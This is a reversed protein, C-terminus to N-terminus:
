ETRRTWRARQRATAIGQASAGRLVRMAAVEAPSGTREQPTVPSRGGIRALARTLLIDAEDEWLLPSRLMRGDVTHFTLGLPTTRVDAIESWTLLSRGIGVGQHGLVFRSSPLRSALAVGTLLLTACGGIMAAVFMVFAPDATPVGLVLRVALMAVPWWTLILFTVCTPITIAPAGFRAWRHSPLSLGDLDLVLRGLDEPLEPLPEPPREPRETLNRARRALRELESPQWSM